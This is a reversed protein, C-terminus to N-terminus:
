NRCCSQQELTESVIAKCKTICADVNDPIHGGLSETVRLLERLAHHNNSFADPLGAEQLMGLFEMDQDGGAESAAAPTSGGEMTDDGSSDSSDDSSDSGQDAPDRKESGTGESPGAAAPPPGSM